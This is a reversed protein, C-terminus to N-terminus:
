TDFAETAASVWVSASLESGLNEDIRDRRTWDCGGVECGFLIRLHEPCSWQSSPSARFFDGLCHQEEDLRIEDGSFTDADIASSM